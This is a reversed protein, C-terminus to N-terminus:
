SQEPGIFLFSTSPTDKLRKRQLSDVVNEVLKKKVNGTVAM